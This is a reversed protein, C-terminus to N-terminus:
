SDHSFLCATEGHSHLLSKIHSSFFIGDFYCNKVWSRELERSEVFSNVSRQREWHRWMRGRIWTGTGECKHSFCFCTAKPRERAQKSYKCPLLLVANETFGEKVVSPYSLGISLNVWSCSGDGPRMFFLLQNYDLYNFLSIPVPKRKDIEICMKNPDIIWDEKTLWLTEM